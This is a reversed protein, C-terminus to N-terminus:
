PIVAAKLLEPPPNELLVAVSELGVRHTILREWPVAGSSLFV